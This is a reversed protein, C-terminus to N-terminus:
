SAMRRAEGAALGATVQEVALWADSRAEEGFYPALAILEARLLELREPDPAPASLEHCVELVLDRALDDHRDDM